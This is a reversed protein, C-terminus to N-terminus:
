SPSFKRWNSRKMNNREGTIADFMVEEPRSASSRLRRGTKELRARALPTFRRLDLVLDAMEPCDPAGFEEAEV